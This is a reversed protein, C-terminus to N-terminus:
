LIDSLQFVQDVRVGKETNKVTCCQNQADHEFFLIYDNTVAKQLFEAKENLTLLPRTDFSPVWPMPMHNITPILDAMFVIKNKKHNIIPIMQQDTHGNAYFIDFSAFPSKAKTDVFLLHGSEELTLLNEKLFSARERDNPQTAWKWHEKNSWYKANPFTLEIAQKKSNQWQTGGGCHDFHLHTFFVDTIESSHFGKARLSQLLTPGKLYFHKLFKEDQKEGIGTDILVLRRSDEILLCRMAIECMNNEDSPMGKSWMSKPVVGFLAGGDLKFTGADIIHLQM